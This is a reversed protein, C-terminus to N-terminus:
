TKTWTRPDLLHMDGSKCTSYDFQSGSDRYKAFINDMELLQNPTTPAIVISDLWAQQSIFSIAAELGTMNHERALNHFGIIDAHDEFPSTSEVLLGQLFISRAQFKAQPYMEPAILFRQDLANVPVQAIFGTGFEQVAKELDVLTYASIGIALVLSDNKAQMLQEAVAHQDLASLAFWDHVLISDVSDRGLRKLSEHIRVTGTGKSAGFGSIKTQVHFENPVLQGIKEEANGYGAATDLANITLDQMTALIGLVSTDTLQGGRNTIGYDLGWQATGIALQAM